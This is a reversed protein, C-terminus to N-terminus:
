RLFTPCLYYLGANLKPLDFGLDVKLSKADSKGFIGLLNGLSFPVQYTVLDAKDIGALKQARRIATRWNGLEDVFGQEYAEKGSLIRGDALSAWKGNLPRGKEDGKNLQNRNNSFQRGEAVVSKFKEYTENIMKAIMAEEEEVDAKEAPTLKELDREGSLM